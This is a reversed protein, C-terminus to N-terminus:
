RHKPILLIIQFLMFFPFCRLLYNFTLKIRDKAKVNDTSNWFAIFLISATSLLAWFLVGILYWAVGVWWLGNHWVVISLGNILAMTPSDPYFLEYAICSLIYTIIESALLCFFIRLSFNDTMESYPSKWEYTKKLKKCVIFTRLFSTFFLVLLLMIGFRNFVEALEQELVSTERVM